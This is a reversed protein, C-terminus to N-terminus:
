ASSHFPSIQYVQTPTSQGMSAYHLHIISHTAHRRTFYNQYNTKWAGPKSPSGVNRRDWEQFSAVGSLNAEMDHIAMKFDHESQMDYSPFKDLTEILLDVVTRGDATRRGTGLVTIWESSPVYHFCPCDM